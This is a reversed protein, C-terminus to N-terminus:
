KVSQNNPASISRLTRFLREWDRQLQAVEEAAEQPLVQGGTLSKGCIDAFRQLESDVLEAMSIIHERLDFPETEQQAVM